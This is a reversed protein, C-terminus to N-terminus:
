FGHRTLFERTIGESPLPIQSKKRIYKALIDTELNVIQSPRKSLLTTKAGTHPIISVTFDKTSVCCVTLSVGEVAVSGQPVISKLLETKPSITLLVANGQPRVSIIRGTGDIHGSVLHGDLRGDAQLAPELNVKDSICLLGLSTMNMTQPVVDAYFIHDHIRTVTLCVGNVAISAGVSIQGTLNSRIGLSAYDKRRSISIITGVDRILGTFM